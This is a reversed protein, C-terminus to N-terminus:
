ARRIGPLVALSAGYLGEDGYFLSEDVETFGAARALILAYQAPNLSPNFAANELYSGGFWQQGCRVAVGARMQSYPSWSKEAAARALDAGEGQLRGANSLMGGSVGLDDPGFSYPLLDELTYRGNPLVISLPAALERLFQRCHGCPAHTIEIELLATEGAAHALALVAQEAHVTHQLGLGKWEMNFGAYQRGSAGRGVAGVLFNSIPAVALQRAQEIM